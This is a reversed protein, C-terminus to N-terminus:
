CRFRIKWPKKPKEIDIDTVKQVFNIKNEKEKAKENGYFIENWSTLMKDLKNLEEEFKQLKKVYKQNKKIRKDNFLQAMKIGIM